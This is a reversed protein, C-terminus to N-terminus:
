KRGLLLGSILGMFSGFAFIRMGYGIDTIGLRWMLQSNVEYFFAGFATMILVELAQIRGILSAYAVLMAISCAIADVLSAHTYDSTNARDQGINAFSIRNYFEEDFSKVSNPDNTGAKDWFARVMFYSQISLAFILLTLSMGSFSANTIYANVLGFGVIALISLVSVLFIDGFQITTQVDYNFDLLLGYILGVMIEYGIALFAFIM